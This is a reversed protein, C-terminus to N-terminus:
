NTVLKILEQPDVDQLCSDTQVIQDVEAYYDHLIKTYPSEEAERGEIHWRYLDTFEAHREVVLALTELNDARIREKWDLSQTNTLGTKCEYWIFNHNWFGLPIDDVIMIAYVSDEAYVVRGLIIETYAIVLDREGMFAAGNAYDQCVLYAEKIASFDREQYPRIQFPQMRDFIHYYRDDKSYYCSRGFAIRYRENKMFHLMEALVTDCYLYDGPSIAKVYKGTAVSYASMANHVTGKNAVSCVICYDQVDHESMWAAIEDQRFDPTGDDAIIIEYSCGQQRIISTLTIFLKEYDPRYTLVCVSIDVSPM